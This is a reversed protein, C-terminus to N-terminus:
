VRLIQRISTHVLDGLSFTAANSALFQRSSAGELLAMLQQAALIPNLEPPLSLAAQQSVLKAIVQAVVEEDNKQLKALMHPNRSVEAEIEHILKATSPQSLETVAEIILSGWADVIQGDERLSAIADRLEFHEMEAVAEIIAEKSAFYRYLLGLSMGMKQAIVQMSTQHFGRETFCDKAAQLIETRRRDKLEPNARRM